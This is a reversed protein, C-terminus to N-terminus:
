TVFVHFEKKHKKLLITTTTKFGCIDCKIKHDSNTHRKLGNQSKGEFNCESCKNNQLKNAHISNSESENESLMDDESKEVDSEEFDSEEDDKEVYHKDNFFCSKPCMMDHSCKSAIVCIEKHRKKEEMFEKTMGQLRGTLCKLNEVKQSNAKCNLCKESNESHNALM